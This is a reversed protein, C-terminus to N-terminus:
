TLLGATAEQELLAAREGESLWQVRSGAPTREVRLVREISEAVAHLHSIVAVMRGKAAQQDLAELAEALANADLSGFGEDLFLADLRGGERGALEVLGLALALSALFTEGGSLTMVSRPEGTLRDVVDFEQSFGYRNKTMDGLLKSAVVLLSQQKRDVVHGIFKGDTLLRALERLRM